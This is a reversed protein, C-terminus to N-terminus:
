APDSPFGDPYRGLFLVMVTSLAFLVSAVMFSFDYSSTRDYVMAFLMPATGSCVALTSYLVAYIKAYHRLGFYKAALFAMLDLEAGAAFGILFSATAAMYFSPAGFFILAGIVPLALAFAAVGPAWFRDVLYGVAVRGVVISGGYISQVTAADSSSFGDDTLSPFLNTGIGSFGMYALLISLALVWFRYSRLAEGFSLGSEIESQWENGEDRGAV